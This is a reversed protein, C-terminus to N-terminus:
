QKFYYTSKLEFSAIAVETPLLTFMGADIPLKGNM